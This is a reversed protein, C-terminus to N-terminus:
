STAGLCTKMDSALGRLLAEYADAGPPIKAGIPDLTGKRVKTGETLTAVLKPEFQPEAFVCVVGGAEMRQRLAKLRKAGPQVEPNVTISGASTLGFRQEFYQYADHFVLFPKAVVPQLDRSLDQQLTDLRTSAARANAEFTAAHAPALASFVQALYALMAKGNEPDLWFHADMPAKGRAAGHGHKHGHAHDHDDDREFLGGERVPLRTLGPAQDLKVLKVAKPLTTSVKGMFTELDDSVMLVARAQHLGRVQSPKLAYTHPSGAGEILLEPAAVTGLVAAALAHIPKITVVVTFPRTGTPPEAASSPATSITMWAVAVAGIARTIRHSSTQFAPRQIRM